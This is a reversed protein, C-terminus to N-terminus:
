SGVTPVTVSGRLRHEGLLLPRFSDLYPALNDTAHRAMAESDGYVLFVARPIRDVEPGELHRRISEVELATGLGFGQLAPDVFLSTYRLTDPALRHNIQWGQVEGAELLALSNTPEINGAHRFPSLAEPYWPGTRQRERIRALAAEPLECWPVFSFAKPLRVPRYWRAERLRKTGEVRGVWAVQALPAYGSSAALAKIPALDPRDELTLALRDAGAGVALADLGQLLARGIGRRRHARDVVVSLVVGRRPDDGEGPVQGLALGIPRGELTAGLRLPTAGEPSGKLLERYRPFTLSAFLEM